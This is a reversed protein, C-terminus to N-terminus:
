YALYSRLLFRVDVDDCDSSFIHLLILNNDASVPRYRRVIAEGLNVSQGAIVFQFWVLSM